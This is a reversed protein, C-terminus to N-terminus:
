TLFDFLIHNKPNFNTKPSCAYKKKQVKKKLTRRLSAFVYGFWISEYTWCVDGLYERGRYLSYKHVM